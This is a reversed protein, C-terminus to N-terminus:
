TAILKKIINTLVDSPIASIGQGKGFYDKLIKITEPDQLNNKPDAIELLTPKKNLHDKLEKAVIAPGLGTNTKNRDFENILSAAGALAGGVGMGKLAGKIKKNKASTLAGFTGGVTAGLAALQAPNLHNLNLSGQKPMLANKLTDMMKSISDNNLVPPREKPTELLKSLAVGAATIPRGLGQIASFAANTPTAADFLKESDKLYGSFSGGPAQVGKTIDRIDTGTAMALNAGVLGLDVAAIVKAATELKKRNKDNKPLLKVVGLTGLGAALVQAQPSHTVANLINPIKEVLEAKPYFHIAKHVSEAENPSLKLGLYAPVLAKDIWSRGEYDNIKKIAPYIHALEPFGLANFVKFVDPPINEPTNLLQRQVGDPLAAIGQRWFSLPPTGPPIGEPTGPPRVEPTGPPMVEPTEALKLIRLYLQSDMVLYLM